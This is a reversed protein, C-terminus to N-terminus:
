QTASCRSRGKRQRETWSSRLIRCPRGAPVSWMCVMRCFFFRALAWKLSQSITLCGSLDDLTAPPSSIHKQLSTRDVQPTFQSALHFRVNPLENSRQVDQPWLRGQQFNWMRCKQSPARGASGVARPLCLSRRCGHLRQSLQIHWCSTRRVRLEQRPFRWSNSLTGMPVWFDM